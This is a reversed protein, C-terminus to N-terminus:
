APDPWPDACGNFAQQYQRCHFLNHRRSPQLLRAPQRSYLIGLNNHSSLLADFEDRGGRLAQSAVPRVNDQADIEKATYNSGYADNYARYILQPYKDGDKLSDSDGIYQLEGNTIKVDSIPLEFRVVNKGYDSAGANGTADVGKEVASLYDGYRLNGLTKKDVDGGRFLIVNNGIVEAGTQKLENTKSSVSLQVDGGGMALVKDAEASTVIKVKGTDLLKDVGYGFSKIAKDMASKLTTVTHTNASPQGKSYLATGKDTEKTKLEALLFAIARNIAQREEGTPPVAEIGALYSNKSEQEKLTDVVFADFARAFMELKSSWYLKTTKNKDASQSAKLYNSQTMAPVHAASAKANNKQYDLSQMSLQLGYANDLNYTRGTAKKYADRMEVIVPSLYKSSSIAIKSDSMDLKRVREALANFVDAPVKNATFDREIAKLWSEVRKEEKALIREHQAQLEAETPPKSETKTMARVISRFQDLVEPRLDDSFARVREPTRGGTFKTVYGDIDGRESHETLFPSKDRGLGAITAFYHDLAHGWEHALAGAGSERTLNIENVGPVFHAMAKGKGQAGIALGLMGNLSMAKPPVGIIEALDLFADYAHNLHAQRESKVAKTESLMWNGFNVAKFGFTDKLKDSSINEGEARRDKGIREAHAVSWGKESIKDKNAERKVLERAKEIAAEKTDAVGKLRNAKDLVLHKGSLDTIRSNAFEQVLQDDKSTAGDMVTSEINITRNKDKFSIWVSVYPDGNNRKGEYFEPALDNGNVIRYGQRQWSEQPIPWGTDIAKMVKIIDDTSPQVAKLLKNGGILRLEDQYNRWGDPYISELLSKSAHEVLRSIEITGGPRYAGSRAAAKRVLDAVNDRNGAWTMAGDMVRNVGTIYAQLTLDNAVERGGLIPTTAIADYAQKITYAAIKSLQENEFSSDAIIAEYDPKPFVKSKTVESVRLSENSDKIDEWKLGQKVRNRRNYTLEEGANGTNHSALAKEPQATVPEDKAASNTDTDDAQRYLESAKGAQVPEKASTDVVYQMKEVADANPMTRGDVSVTGKRPHRVAVRGIAKYQAILSDIKDAKAEPKGLMAHVDEPTVDGKRLDAALKIQDAKPIDSSKIAAQASEKEVVLSDEVTPESPKHIEDWRAEIDAKQKAFEAKGLRGGLYSLYADRTKSIDLAHQIPDSAPDESKQASPKKEAVSPKAKENPAEGSKSGTGADAGARNYEFDQQREPATIVASAPPLGRGTRKGSRERNSKESKLDNDAEKKNTGYGPTAALGNLKIKTTDPKEVTIVKSGLDAEVRQMGQKLLDNNDELGLVYFEDGSIHYINDYGFEAVLADAVSQLLKDGNDPTMNDNVWKLSDADVSVFHAAQTQEIAFALRNKVGTLEHKLLQDLLQDKSLSNYHDRATNNIRRTEPRGDARRGVPEAPKEAVPEAKVEVDLAQELAARHKKNVRVADLKNNPLMSVGAKQLAHIIEGTRGSVTVAQDDEAIVRAKPKASQAPKTVPLAYADEVEVGQADLWRNKIPKGADDLSATVPTGDSTEHTAAFGTPTVQPSQTVAQTVAQATPKAQLPAKQAGAQQQQSSTGTSQRPNRPVESKQSENEIGKRIIDKLAAQVGAQDDNMELVRDAAVPDFESADYHLESLGRVETDWGADYEQEDFATGTGIGQEFHRRDIATNMEAVYENVPVQAKKALIREIDPTIGLARKRKASAIKQMMSQSQRAERQQSTEASGETNVFVDPTGQVLPVLQKDSSIPNSLVGSEPPSAPRQIDYIEDVIQQNLSEASTRPQGRKLIDARITDINQERKGTEVDDVLKNKLQDLGDKPQAVKQIRPETGTVPGLVGGMLAGAAMANMIESVGEPTFIDKNKDVYKLASREIITQAGETLGELSGQKAAEKLIRPLFKDKVVEAIIEQKAKDGAGFKNFIRMVPLADIAGAMTGFALAVGPRDEGTEKLIDQYIGGSEMGISVGGAGVAQGVTAAAGAEVGALVGREVLKKAALGGVGGGLFMTAMTPTLNGLQYAGWDVADGVGGIDEVRGVRAANEGAEAMNRQYGETGWQQVSDAGVASGALSVAGYGLAQTQDVGAKLGKTVQWSEDEPVSESISDDLESPTGYKNFFYGRLASRTSKPNEAQARDVWDNYQELTPAAM